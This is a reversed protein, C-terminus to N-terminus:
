RWDEIIENLSLVESNVHESISKEFEKLSSEPCYGIKKGAQKIISVQDQNLEIQIHM